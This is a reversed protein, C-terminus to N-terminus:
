FIQKVFHQLWQNAAPRIRGTRPGTAGEVFSAEGVGAFSVHLM